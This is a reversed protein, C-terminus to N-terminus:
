ERQVQSELYEVSRKLLSEGRVSLEALASRESLCTQLDRGANRFGDLERLRGDYESRLGNLRSVLNAVDKEYKAKEKEQAEIVARASELKLAEIAREGEVEAHKYGILYIAGIIAVIVGYKIYNGDM